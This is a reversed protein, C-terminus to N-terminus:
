RASAVRRRLSKALGSHDVGLEKAAARISGMRDVVERYVKLGMRRAAEARARTLYFAQIRRSIEAPPVAVAISLGAVIKAVSSRAIGLAEAVPKVGFVKAAQRVEAFVRASLIPSSGYVIMADAQIGLIFTEEWQDAEKGILEVGTVIVHRPETRGLDFAEANRFKSEPRRPYGALAEAYTQLQDRRVPQGTKRDFAQAIAKDLDRDFPAMPHVPGEGDNLFAGAWRPHLCYMFGFPKVQEAYPKGANFRKFWSLLQPSTAGYRSVTPSNLAPHYDFKLGLLGGKLEAEVIKFWLDYQWRELRDKGSRLAPHPPPIGAPPDDEAYPARLHGLGHASAKRLIPVGEDDLNFLAYRKSSIALCYLPALDGSGDPAFNVDEVKLISEDFGYPNLPEFWGVVSMSRRLFEEDSMDDPKAIALSDTDCFAWDLGSSEARHQALALMLRAAGTILTALLPNFMPGPREVKRSALNFPQDDGFVQINTRRNGTEVNFQAFVGYSTANAIIKIAQRRDEIAAKEQDSKGAKGAAERQRLQILARFLDDKRPDIAPLGLLEFSRLDLQPPGPEFTIAEVVEPAKGGLFKAVLCDALTFWLCGDHTLWNLGITAHLEGQYRARIPLLDRDPRVKVLVNLGPWASQDQFDQPAASSLFARTEATADRTVFGKATMFRWLDMLVCVTPYMSTFDTLLVRRAKLRWHIETRGGFYTGMTQGTLEPPCHPQVERWPAIGLAAFTAKGLSAESYIEWPQIPLRYSDLKRVLAQYCEWTAQVDSRAYDLYAPTLVGGHDDSSQKQTTTGLTQSLSELSHSRSTLAAALTKVDVFHGRRTPPQPGKGRKSRAAQPTGPATFEIVAARPSLHKIQVNPWRPNDSLKLTFAGHMKRRWQSARATSAGMAIRALDFPLNFGVILAGIDYARKLFVEERFAAVTMPEPLGHDRTYATLTDLEGTTLADPDYFYGEEDLEGGLRLQYVGIRLRQSPDITTETDFILTVDSPGVIKRRRPTSSRAGQDVAETYARVLIPLHDPEPGAAVPARNM